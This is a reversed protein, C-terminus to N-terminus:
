VQFSLKAKNNLWKRTFRLREISLTTEICNEWCRHVHTSEVKRKLRFWCQFLVPDDVNFWRLEILTTKDVNFCRRYIYTPEVEMKLWIDVNFCRQHVNAILMTEVNIWRQHTQQPFKVLLLSYCLRFIFAFERLSETACDRM